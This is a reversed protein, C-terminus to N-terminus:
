GTAFRPWLHAADCIICVKLPEDAVDPITAVARRRCECREVRKRIKTRPAAGNPFEMTVSRDAHAEEALRGGSEIVTKAIWQIGATDATHTTPWVYHEDSWDENWYLTDM